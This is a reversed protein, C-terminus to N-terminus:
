KTCDCQQTHSMPWWRCGFSFCKETLCSKMKGEETGQVLGKSGTETSRNSGIFPTVCQRKQPQSIESLRSDGHSMQTTSCLGLEGKWLTKDMKVGTGEYTAEM